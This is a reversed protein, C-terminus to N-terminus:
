PAASYYILSGMKATVNTNPSETSLGIRLGAASLNLGTIEGPVTYSLNTSVGTNDFHIQALYRIVTNSVRIITGEIKWGGGSTVGNSLAAMNSGGAAVGVGHSTAGTAAFIGAYTFTVKDGNNSLFAPPITYAYLTDAGTADTYFDKVPQTSSITEFRGTTNNRVLSTYGGTSYAPAGAIVNGNVDLAEAPTTKGIGVLGGGSANLIINGYLGTAHNYNYIQARNNIADFGLFLGRTKVTSFGNGTIEIAKNTTDGVNTVDQLASAASAAPSKVRFSSDAPNWMLISDGITSSRRVRMKITDATVTGSVQFKGGNLSPATNGVVVQGFPYLRLLTNLYALGTISDNVSLYSYTVRQANFLTGFYGGSFYGGTNDARMKYERFSAAATTGTMDILVGLVPSSKDITIGNFTAGVTSTTGGNMVFQLSLANTRLNGTANVSVVKDTTSTTLPMNLLKYTGGSLSFGGLQYASTQNRIASLIQANVCSHIVLSFIISTLLRKMNTLQLTVM